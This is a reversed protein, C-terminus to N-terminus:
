RTVSSESRDGGSPPQHGTFTARQEANEPVKCMEVCNQAASRYSRIRRPMSYSSSATWSATQSHPRANRRGSSSRWTTSTSRAAGRHGVGCRASPKEEVRRVARRAADPVHRARRQLRIRGLLLHAERGALRRRRTRLSAGVPHTRRDAAAQRHGESRREQVARPGPQRQQRHLGVRSQRGASIRAYPNVASSVCHAIADSTALLEARSNWNRFVNRWGLPGNNGSSSPAFARMFRDSARRSGGSCSLGASRRTRLTRPREPDSRHM